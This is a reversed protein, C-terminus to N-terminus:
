FLQEQALRKAAIECYAESIEIGIAKRGIQKAAVLTTGSGMFPDVVVDTESSALKVLWLMWELPKPCPHGMETDAKGRAVLVTNHAGLNLGPAVGYFLIPALNQFGWPSHGNAAPIYVAGIASPAQLAWVSPAPGFVAARKTQAIGMSIAPVVSAAYAEPTDEYIDYGGRRLERTRRDNAGGHKGLNMGYPPDTVMVDADVGPLVDMCDGHYITIGAHEYYPKM